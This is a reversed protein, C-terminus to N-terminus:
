NTVLIENPKQNLENHKALWQLALKENHRGGISCIRTSGGNPHPDHYYLREQEPCGSWQMMRTFLDDWWYYGLLLDPYVHEHQFWWARTFAFFDAGDDTAKNPGCIRYSWFCGYKRCSEIVAPHLASDFKIDTNTIAIINETGSSIAGHIMDRIYPASFPDGLQASTREAPFPYLRCPLHHWTAKADEQRKKTAPDNSNFSDHVLVIDDGTPNFLSLHIM